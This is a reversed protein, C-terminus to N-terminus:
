EDVASKFKFTTTKGLGIVDGDKLEYPKGIDIEVSNLYTGNAAMEDQIYFRNNKSLITVHKGSIGPDKTVIISNATSSGISNRGEYIRFDSGKADLTYSIIWGTIKRIYHDQQTGADEASFSMGQIFTKNLDGSAPAKKATSGAPAPENINITGEPAYQQTKQNIAVTEGEADDPRPCYSCFPLEEKYFHGRPCQKFGKMNM